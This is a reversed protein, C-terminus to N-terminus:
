RSRFHLLYSGTKQKRSRIHWKKRTRNNNNQRRRLQYRGATTVLDGKIKSTSTDRQHSEVRDFTPRTEPKRTCITSKHHPRTFSNKNCTLIAFYLSYFFSYKPNSKTPKRPLRTSTTNRPSM